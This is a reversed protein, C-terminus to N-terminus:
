MYACPRSNDIELYESDQKRMWRVTTPVAIKFLKQIKFKYNRLLSQSIKLHLVFKSVINFLLYHDFILMKGGLLENKVILFSLTQVHSCM